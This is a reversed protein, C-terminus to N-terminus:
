GPQEVKRKGMRQAFQALVAEDEVIAENDWAAETYVSLPYQGEFHLDREVFVGIKDKLACIENLSVYGLEPFGFGLDCLGFAVSDQEEIELEMLETLLWTCAANPTFLKVVPVHDKGTRKDSGNRKLLELQTQTFLDQM